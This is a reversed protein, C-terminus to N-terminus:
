AGGGVDGVGFIMSVRQGYRDDTMSVSSCKQDGAKRNVGTTLGFSDYGYTSVGATFLKVHPETVFNYSYILFWVVM